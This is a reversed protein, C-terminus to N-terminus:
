EDKKSKIKPMHKVCKEFFGKKKALKYVTANNKFWEYRTKYKRADKVFERIGKKNFSPKVNMHGICDNFWGYTRAASYANGDGKAWEGRKNYRLASLHCRELTWKLATNDMHNTCEKFWGHNNASYYALLDLKKWESQRQCKLASELCKELTWYRHPKRDSKKM